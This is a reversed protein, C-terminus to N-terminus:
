FLSLHAFVPDKADLYNDGNADFYMLSAIADEVIRDGKPLGKLLTGHALPVVPGTRPQGEVSFTLGAAALADADAVVHGVMPTGYADITLIVGHTPPDAALAEALLLATLM